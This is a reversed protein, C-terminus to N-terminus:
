VKNLKTLSFTMMQYGNGFLLWVYYWFIIAINLEIKLANNYNEYIKFFNNKDIINCLQLSDLNLIHIEQNLFKVIGKETMFISIASSYSCTLM